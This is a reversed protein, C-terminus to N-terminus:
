DIKLKQGVLIKDGSIGNRARLTAVSVGYRSSLKSLNDGAKVQHVRRLSATRKPQSASKGPPRYVTKVVSGGQFGSTTRATSSRSSSRSAVTAPKKKASSATQRASSPKAKAPAPTRAAVTKPKSPAAPKSYSTSPSGHDTFPIVSAHESASSDYSSYAQAYDHNLASADYQGFSQNEQPYTNQAVSAGRSQGFFGGESYGGNGALEYPNAEAAGNQGWKGSQCSIAGLALLCPFFHRIKM